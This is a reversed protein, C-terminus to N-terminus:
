KLRRNRGETSASGFAKNNGNKQDSYESEEKVGICELGGIGRSGWIGRQANLSLADYQEQGFVMKAISLQDDSECNFVAQFKYLNGEGSGVNCIM